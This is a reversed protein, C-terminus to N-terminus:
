EKEKQLVSETIRISLRQENEALFPLRIEPPLNLFFELDLFCAIEGEDSFHELVGSGPLQIAHKGVTLTGRVDFKLTPHEHTDIFEMGLKGQYSAEQNSAESFYGQLSDIRTRLSSPSLRMDVTATEYDLHIILDNSTAVTTQGDFVGILAIRGKTTGYYNSQAQVEQVAFIIAIWLLLQLVIPNIVQDPVPFNM